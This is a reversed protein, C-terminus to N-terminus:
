EGKILTTIDNEIEFVLFDNDEEVIEKLYKFEKDVIMEFYGTERNLEFVPCEDFRVDGIYIARVKKM